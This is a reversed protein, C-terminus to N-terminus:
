LVSPIAMRLMAVVAKIVAAIKVLPQLVMWPTPLSTEDSLSTTGPPDFWALASVAAAGAAAGASAGAPVWYAAPCGPLSAPYEAARM